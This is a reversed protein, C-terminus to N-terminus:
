RAALCRLGNKLASGLRLNAPNQEGATAFRELPRKQRLHQRVAAPQAHHVTEIRIAQLEAPNIIKGRPRGDAKPKQQMMQRAGAQMAFFLGRANVHNIFDWDAPTVELLPSVRIVGANNVLVDLRGFREVVRKIMATSQEPEGVDAVFADAVGGLSQIEQAVAKAAAEQLDVVVVSAGERAYRLAMARGIGRASGTILSITGDLKSM